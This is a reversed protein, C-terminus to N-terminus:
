REYKSCFRLSRSVATRRVEITRGLPSTCRQRERRSRFRCACMGEARISVFETCVVRVSCIPRVVERQNVDAGREIESEVGVANKQGVYHLLRAIDSMAQVAPVTCSEQGQWRLAWCNQIWGPVSIRRHHQLGPVNASLETQETPHGRKGTAWGFLSGELVGVRM